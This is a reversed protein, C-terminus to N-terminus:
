RRDQDPRGSRPGGCGARRRSAAGWAPPDVVDEDPRGAPVAPPPHDARPQDTVAGLSTDPRRVVAAHEDLQGAPRVVAPAGQRLAPTSPGRTRPRRRGAALPAGPVPRWRGDHASRAPTRRSRGHPARGGGATGRLTPGRAEMRYRRTMGSSVGTNARRKGSSRIAM